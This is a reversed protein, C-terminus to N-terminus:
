ARVSRLRKNPSVGRSKGRDASLRACEKAAFFQVQTGGHEAPVALVRPQDGCLFLQLHPFIDLAFRAFLYEPRVGRISHLRTNHYNQYVSLSVNNYVHVAPAWQDGVKKPVISFQTTRYPICMKASSSLIPRRISPTAVLIARLTSHWATEASGTVRARRYSTRVNSLM